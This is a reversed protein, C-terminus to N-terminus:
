PRPQPWPQSRDRPGHHSSRWHPARLPGPLSHPHDSRPRPAAEGGGTRDASSSVTSVGGSSEARCMGEIPALGVTAGQFARGRCVPHLTVRRALVRPLWAPSGRPSPPVWTLLQASDHPRRAWLGRRWQLFAWLTANADPSVRSQDQETWVELGTLAVQIDLTRLIQPRSMPSSLVHWRARAGRHCHGRKEAGVGTRM